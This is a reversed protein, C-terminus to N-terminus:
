GNLKVDEDDKGEEDKGRNNISKRFTKIRDLLIQRNKFAILALIVLLVIFILKGIFSFTWFM